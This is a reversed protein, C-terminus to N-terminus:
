IDHSHIFHCSVVMTGIVVVLVGGSGIPTSDTTRIQTKVNSIAPEQECCLLDFIFLEDPFWYIPPTNVTIAAIISQVGQYQRGEWILMSEPRQEYTLKRKRSDTGRSARMLYRLSMRVYLNTMKNREEIGADFTNFYHGVFSEIRNWLQWGLRLLRIPTNTCDPCLDPTMSAIDDFSM